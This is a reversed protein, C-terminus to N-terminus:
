RVWIVGFHHDIVELDSSLTFNSTILGTAGEFQGEGGDVRWMVSGHNLGEEPSPGAYGEGVTSFRLSNGEGFTITGTETFSTDGTFVVESTFEATGGDGPEIRTTVGDPSVTSTIQNSPCQTSARLMKEGAAEARGRFQMAYQIQRM